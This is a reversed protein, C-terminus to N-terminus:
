YDDNDDYYLDSDDNDFNFKEIESGNLDDDVIDDHLGNTTIQKSMTKKFGCSTCVGDIYITVDRCIPCWLSAYEEEDQIIKNDKNNDDVLDSM